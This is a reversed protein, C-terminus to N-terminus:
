PLDLEGAVSGAATRGVAVKGGELLGGWLGIVIPPLAQGQPPPNGTALAAIVDLRDVATTYDMLVVPALFRALRFTYTWNGMLGTPLPTGPAFSLWEFDTGDRLGSWLREPVCTLPAGTDLVGDQPLLSGPLRVLCRFQPRLISVLNGNPDSVPAHLPRNFTTLRIVPM